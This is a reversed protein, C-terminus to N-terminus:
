AGIALKLDQFSNQLLEWIRRFLGKEQITNVRKNLQILHEMMENQSKEIRKLTASVDEKTEIMGDMFKLQEELLTKRLMALDKVKNGIKSLQNDVKLNTKQIDLSLGAVDLKTANKNRLKEMNNAKYNKIKQIVSKQLTDIKHQDTTTDRLNELQTRLLLLEAEERKDWSVHEIINKNKISELEIIKAKLMKREKGGKFVNLFPRLM